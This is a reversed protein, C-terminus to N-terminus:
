KKKHGTGSGGAEKRQTQSKKKRDTLHYITLMEEKQGQTHTHVCVSDGSDANWCTSECTLLDSMGSVGERQINM